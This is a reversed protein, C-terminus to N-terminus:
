NLFASLKYLLKSLNDQTLLRFFTISEICFASVSVSFTLIFKRLRFCILNESLSHPFFRFLIPFFLFFTNCTIWLMILLLLIQSPILTQVVWTQHLYHVDYCYWNILSAIIGLKIQLHEKCSLDWEKLTIVAFYNTVKASAKFKM